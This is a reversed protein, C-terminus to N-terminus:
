HLPASKVLVLASQQLLGLLHQTQEQSLSRYVKYHEDAVLDALRLADAALSRRLDEVAAEPYHRLSDVIAITEMQVRHAHFVLFPLCQARVADCGTLWGHEFHLVDQVAALAVSARFLVDKVAAEEESFCSAPSLGVVVARWADYAETADLFSKWALHERLQTHLEAARPGFALDHVVALSDEPLAAFLAKLGAQKDEAVLQRALRNAQVIAEARHARDYCLLQLAHIRRADSTAAAITREAAAKTVQAFLTPPCFPEIAALCASAAHPVAMLCQTYVERRGAEPLRSAYLAVLKYQGHQVLHRLYAKLVSHGATEDFDEHTAAMFLVFHAGFRLLQPPTAPAPSDLALDWSFPEMASAVLGALVESVIADVRSSVLKAQIRRHPHAAQARVTDSASAAVEAFLADIDGVLHGVVPKAQAMFAHYLRMHEKTQELLLHTSQAKLEHLHLIAADEQYGVVAKLLGWVHDEWSACTPSALLARAHGSLAAYIVREVERADLSTTKHVNAGTQAEALQWCMQKWLMRFPNGWRSVGDDGECAGSIEGGSLSAARWPQGLQICLDAAERAQGARLLRWVSQLLELDDEVDDADLYSDGERLPGDPDMAGVVSARRHRQLAQLTRGYMHRSEKTAVVDEAAVAELWKLVTKQLAFLQQRNELAAIADLETSAATVPLEGPALVSLEAKKHISLERLEFFLRWTNRENRLEDTPDVVCNPGTFGHTLSFPVPTTAVSGTKIRAEIENQLIDIYETLVQQFLLNPDDVMELKTYLQELASAFAAEEPRVQHDAWAARQFAVSADASWENESPTNYANSISSITANDYPRMVSKPQNSPVTLHLTGELALGCDLLFWDSPVEQGQFLGVLRPTEKSSPQRKAYAQYLVAGITTAAPDVDVYEVFRDPFQVKVHALGKKVSKEVSTSELADLLASAQAARSATTTAIPEYSVMDVDEASSVGINTEEEEHLQALFALSSEAALILDSTRQAM